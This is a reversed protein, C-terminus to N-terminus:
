LADGRLAEQAEDSLGKDYVIYSGPDYEPRYVYYGAAFLKSEYEDALESSFEENTQNCDSPCEGDCPGENTNFHDCFTDAEPREIGLIACADDVFCDDAETANRLAGDRQILAKSQLEAEIRTEDTKQM